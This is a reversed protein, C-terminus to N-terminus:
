ASRRRGGGGTGNRDAADRSESAAAGRAARTARTARGRAPAAKTAAPRAAPKASPKADRRKRGAADGTGGAQALSEELRSMLDIVPTGRVEERESADPLGAGALKAEVLRRVADEYEDTFTSTDFPARLHAILQEAMAKEQPRVGESSPLSLGHVDVLASAPRIVNMVLAGELVSVTVVHTRQRMTVRGIGVVGSDRIAERLLAYAREATAEPVLFYPTDYHRPDIEAADVFAILELARGTPVRLADLEEPAIVVFRDKAYEYGKVVDSWPVEDGTVANVRKMKVPADNTRDLQRFAVKETSRTAPEARVPINVLGFNLAGKWITAM